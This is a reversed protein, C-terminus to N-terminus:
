AGVQPLPQVSLPPRLMVGIPYAPDSHWEFGLSTHIRVTPVNTHAVHLAFPDDPFLALVARMIERGFGRGRESPFVAMRPLYRSGPAVVPAVVRHYDGLASRLQLRQEPSMARMLAITGGQQAQPLVDTPTVSIFGILRDDEFAGYTAETETGAVGIQGALAEHLAPKPLPVLGYFEPVAAALMEGMFLRKELDWGAVQASHLLSLTLM